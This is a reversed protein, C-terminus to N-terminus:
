RDRWVGTDLRASLPPYWPPPHDRFRADYTYNKDFGTVMQGTSTSFTGVAGRYKQVIGGHISLVGRPSGSNFNEVGFGGQTTSSPNYQGTAMMHAHINLNDPVSPKVVVNRGAILGLADTSSPDSQPSVSYHLHDIINIDREAVLTLRGALTGGVSVDAARTGETGTTAVAIYVLADPPVPLTSVDNSWGARENLIVMQGGDFTIQTNGELYLVAEDQMATMDVTDLHMAPMGLHLGQAFVADNTSGGFAPDASTVAEQFVPDGSFWLRSNAHVKGGFVEGHKFYLDRNNDSWLAYDAWTRTRLGEMTVVRTQGGVTGVAVVSYHEPEPQASGSGWAWFGLIALLGLKATSM